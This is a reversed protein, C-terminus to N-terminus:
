QKKATLLVLKVASKEEGDITLHTFEPRCTIEVGENGIYERSIAVAKIANNVSKPGMVIIEIEKGERINHVIAGAVVKPDSSGAVKLTMTEM